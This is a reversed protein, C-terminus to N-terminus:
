SVVARVIGRYVLRITGMEVVEVCLWREKMCLTCSDRFVHLKRSMIVSRPLRNGFDLAPVKFSVFYINSLTDKRNRSMALLFKM